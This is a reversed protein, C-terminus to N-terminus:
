GKGVLVSDETYDDDFTQQVPEDEEGLMETLTAQTKQEQAIKAQQKQTQEAVVAGDILKEDRVCRDALKMLKDKLQQRLDDMSKNVVVLESKETFLGVDSIKGLLELSRLRVRPDPNETELILKNQVLNRVHQANDVVQSQFETLINDVLKLSAPTMKGVRVATATKSTTEPDTAYCTALAAADDKDQKTPAAAPVGAEELTLATKCAAHAREILDVYPTSPEYPVGIDMSPKFVQEGM